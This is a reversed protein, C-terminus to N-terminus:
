FLDDYKKNITICGNDSINYNKDIIIKFNYYNKLLKIVNTTHFMGSHLIHTKNCKIICSCIYWEMIDNLLSNIEEFIYQHNNYIDILSLKLLKNNKKLFLKYNNKIYLFHNIFSVNNSHKYFKSFKHYFIYDQILNYINSNKIFFTHNLKYFSDIINLFNYLTIKSDDKYNDFIELSFPILYPRIDIPKIKNKNNLYLKKLKQTHDSSEWLEKFKFDDHNVEELLIHSSSFKQKLWISIDMYNNCKNLQSHNDSFIIIYKNNNKNFLISYGVAGFLTISM